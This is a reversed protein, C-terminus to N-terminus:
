QHQTAPATEGYTARWRFDGNAMMGPPKELDIQRMTLELRGIAFTVRTSGSFPMVRSSAIDLTVEENRRERRLEVALITPLSLNVDAPVTSSDRYGEPNLQKKAKWLPLTVRWHEGIEEIRTDSSAYISVELWDTIDM